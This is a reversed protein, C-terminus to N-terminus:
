SLKSVNSKAVFALKGLTDGVKYKSNFGSNLHKYIIKLEGGFYEKNIPIITKQYLNGEPIFIGIVDEPITQNINTTYIITGKTPLLEESEVKVEIEM